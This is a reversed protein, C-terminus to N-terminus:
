WGDAQGCIPQCNLMVVNESSHWRIYVHQNVLANYTLYHLHLKLECCRGFSFLTYAATSSIHMPIPHM